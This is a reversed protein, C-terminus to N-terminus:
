VEVEVKLFFLFSLFSGRRSRPTTKAIACTRPPPSSPRPQYSSPFNKFFGLVHLSKLEHARNRQSAFYVFGSSSAQSPREAPPKSM